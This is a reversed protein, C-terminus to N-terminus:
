NEAIDAQGIEPLELIRFRIAMVERGKKVPEYALKYETKENIEAVARKLVKVNFFKFQLYTEDENCGMIDKLYNVDEEWEKRFANKIMYTFMVYSYRSTLCIINRLRYRIYGINEINFFYKDAVNTSAMKIEWYGDEDPIAEAYEFLNVAVFGDKARKDPINVTRSMLNMVRKELEAKNIKKVGLAQEVDGKHMLVIRNEPNRADIRSLYLDLLKLEALSMQSKWLETLPHSKEVIMDGQNKSIGKLTKAM